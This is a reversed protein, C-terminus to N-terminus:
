LKTLNNNILSILIENSFYIGVFILTEIDGDNKTYIKKIIDCISNAQQSIYNYVIKYPFEIIWKRKKKVTLDQIDQL